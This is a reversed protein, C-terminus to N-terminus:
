WISVFINRPKYESQFIKEGKERGYQGACPLMATCVKVFAGNKQM